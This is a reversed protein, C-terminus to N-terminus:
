IARMCTFTIPALHLLAFQFNLVATELAYNTAFMGFASTFVLYNMIKVVHNYMSNKTQM